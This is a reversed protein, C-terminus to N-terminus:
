HVSVYKVASITEMLATAPGLAVAALLDMLQAGLVPAYVQTKAPSFAVTICFPTTATTLTVMADVTAPADMPTVPARPLVAPPLASGTFPEPPVTVEFITDCGVRVPKFQEGVDKLEPPVEFQVTESLVTAGAPLAVTESNLLAAASVTGADIVTAAPAVEPLKVALAPVIVALEVATIVAVSRALETAVLRDNCGGADLPPPVDLGDATKV